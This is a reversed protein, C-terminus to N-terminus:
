HVTYQLGFTLIGKTLMQPGDLSQYIPLDFNAGFRLDHLKGPAQINLGFGLDIRSGAKLDPDATHIMNPNLAPNAGDIDGWNLFTLALSPAFVDSLKYGVWNSFTVENGLTYESDNEGLHIKAKLQSGFSFAPSQSLLTIGPSLDFTGSGNQMPYPLIVENGGSAPTTDKEENSGTPFSIGLQAHSRTNGKEFVNYMATLAIDGLGSSETTFTNGNMMQHDMSASRYPLMLMLTLDNSVAYMGGLMHMQMPMSTPTVMYGRAFVEQNSLEETGDGNGDMNMYMFRYSFMFEGKTHTHDGMVQIPAHGDPRGSTWQATTINTGAFIICACFFLRKM